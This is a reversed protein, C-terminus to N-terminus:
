IKPARVPVLTNQLIRKGERTRKRTWEKINSVDRVQDYADRMQKSTGRVGVYENRKFKQRIKDAEKRTRSHHDLKALRPTIPTITVISNTNTPRLNKSALFSINRPNGFYSVHFGLPYVDIEERKTGGRNNGFSKKMKSEIHNLIFRPESRNQNVILQKLRTSQLPGNKVLDHLHTIDVNSVFYGVSSNYGLIKKVLNPNDFVELMATTSNPM